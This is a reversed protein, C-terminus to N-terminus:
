LKQVSQNAEKNIFQLTMVKKTSMCNVCFHFEQVGASFISDTFLFTRYTNKDGTLRVNCGDCYTHNTM